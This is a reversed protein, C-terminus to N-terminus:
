KDCGVNPVAPQSMPVMSPLDAPFSELQHFKQMLLPSDFAQLVDSRSTRPKCVSPKSYFGLFKSRCTEHYGASHLECCINILNKPFFAPSFLQMAFHNTDGTRPVTLNSSIGISSPDLRGRHVLDNFRLQNNARTINYSEFTRRNIKILTFKCFYKVHM